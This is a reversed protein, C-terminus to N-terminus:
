GNDDAHRLSVRMGNRVRVLCSRVDPIDDVRVRCEFCHGIGCYIGRNTGTNEDHRLAIHGGALLAAALSEGELAELPLGDVTISVRKSRQTESSLFPHKKLRLDPPM